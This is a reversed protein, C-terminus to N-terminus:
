QGGMRKRNGDFGQWTGFILDWLPIFVGYNRTPDQHHILHWKGSTLFPYLNIKSNHEIAEQIFAAWVYYGIALWWHDTVVSIIVTPIVETFWQDLTSEWSDFWLFANRWNLGTITQQTVQKHHDSHFKRMPKWVHALRHMWYITFTWLLFVLLYSM